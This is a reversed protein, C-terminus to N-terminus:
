VVSGAFLSHCFSERCPKRRPRHGRRKGSRHNPDQHLDHNRCRMVRFRIFSNRHGM